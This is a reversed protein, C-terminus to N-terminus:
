DAETAKFEKFDRNGLCWTVGWYTWTEADAIPVWLGMVQPYCVLKDTSFWFFLIWIIVEFKIIPLIWSAVGAWDWM